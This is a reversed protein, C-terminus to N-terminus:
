KRFENLKSKNKLYTISAYGDCNLLKIKKINRENIGGLAVVKKKTLSSLLNFRITDLFQIKKNIRFIPSIFIIDIGQKEKIKIEKSNHASGILQFNNKTKYKLNLNKNFSPIYAGDLNLKQAIEINNSLFIKKGSKRCENKIKNIIKEDIPKKYNRYIINIKNDLKAIEGKKFDEIFHYVKLYIM